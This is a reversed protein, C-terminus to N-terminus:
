KHYVIFLDGKSSKDGKNFVFKSVYQKILIDFEMSGSGPPLINVDYVEGSIDVMFEVHVGVGTFSDKPFKSFNIKSNTIVERKAGEWVISLDDTEEQVFIEEVPVLSLLSNEFDNLSGTASIDNDYILTNKVLLDPEFDLFVEKYNNSKPKDLTPKIEKKEQIIDVNKGIVESKQKIKNEIKKTILEINIKEAEKEQEKIPLSLIILIFFILHISISLVLPFKLNM